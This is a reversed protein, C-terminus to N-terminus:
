SPQDVKNSPDNINTVEIMLDQNADFGGMEWAVLYGADAVWINISAGAPFAAGLTPFTTADIKLHHAQVGNKSEVGQDAGVALHSFDLGAYARLILAPDYALLLTSALADPVATFKGDPGDAQWAKKGVIVIRSQVTTGDDAFTTIAKSVEPKTVVVSKYTVVGNTAYSTQYSDVGPIAGGLTSLDFTPIAGPVGAVPTPTADGTVPAPTADGTVPAPTPAATSSGGSCAAVILVLPLALAARHGARLTRIM